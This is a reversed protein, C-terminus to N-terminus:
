LHKAAMEIDAIAKLIQRELLEKCVHCVDRPPSATTAFRAVYTQVFQYSFQFAKEADTITDGCCDCAITVHKM